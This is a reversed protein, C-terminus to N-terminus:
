LIKMEPVIKKDKFEACWVQNLACGHRRCTFVNDNLYRCNACIALGKVVEKKKM